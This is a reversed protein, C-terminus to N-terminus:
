SNIFPFWEERPRDANEELIELNLNLGYLEKRKAVYEEALEKASFYELVIEEYYEYQYVVYIKM